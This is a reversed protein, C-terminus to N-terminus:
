SQVAKGKMDVRVHAGEMSAAGGTTATVQVPTCLATMEQTAKRVSASATSVTVVPWAIMQVRKRVATRGLSAKTVFVSGM